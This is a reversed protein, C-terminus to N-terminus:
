EGTVGHKYAMHEVVQGEENLIAAAHVPVSSVAAAALITHYASQAQEWTVANSVLHATTDGTTQLEIIKYM